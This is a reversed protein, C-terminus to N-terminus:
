VLLLGVYPIADVETAGAQPYYEELAGVGKGTHKYGVPNTGGAGASTLNTMSTVPGLLSRFTAAVGVTTFKVALWYLGPDLRWNFTPILLSKVGASAAITFAGASTAEGNVIMKQPYGLFEVDDYCGIRVATGAVAAIAEVCVTSFVERGESVLFPMAYQDGAVMSASTGFGNAAQTTYWKTSMHPLRVAGARPSPTNMSSTNGRTTVPFIKQLALICQDVILAAGLENPHLGDSTLSAQNGIVADLDVIQVMSDFEAVVSALGANATAVDGDKKAQTGTWGGYLAYGAATPRNINCVLVAPPSLSELWWDIFRVSAGADFRTCTAIITQGANASTLNTIRNVIPTYVFSAGPSQNALEVTGTVGATGSYTMLGAAGWSGGWAIAVPEGQYDAPLTMTVTTNTISGATYYTGAAGLGTQGVVGAGNDYDGTVLTFGAGFATRGALVGHYITAARCRSIAARLATQWVAFIPTTPDITGIDNIGYGLIVAGGEGSYPGAARNIYKGRTNFITSWNGKGAGAYWLIAGNKAHNRWNKKDINLAGQFLADTRGTQDLSGGNYQWFSHGYVTWYDPTQLQPRPVLVGKDTIQNAAVTTGTTFGNPVWIAAFVVSNAPIAPFVPAAAATGVTVVPVGTSIPCTILDFRPNGSANATLADVTFVVSHMVDNFRVYGASVNVSGNAAGTTTVVCGSVVGNLRAGAAVIDLDVKDVLAQAPFGADAANPVTFPM